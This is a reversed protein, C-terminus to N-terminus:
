KASPISFTQGQHIGAGLHGGLYLSPCFVVFYEGDMINLCPTSNALEQGPKFQLGTADETSTVLQPAGRRDAASGWTSVGAQPARPPFAPGSPGQPGEWSHAKMSDTHGGTLVCGHFALWCRPLHRTLSDIFLLVRPRKRSKPLPPFATQRWSPRVVQPLCSPSVPLCVSLSVASPCIEPPVAGTSNAEPNASIGEYTEPHPRTGTAM